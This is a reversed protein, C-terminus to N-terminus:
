LLPIIQCLFALLGPLQLLMWNLKTPKTNNCPVLSSNIFLSIKQPMQKQWPLQSACVSGKAPKPPPPSCSPNKKYLLCLKLFHPPQHSPLFPPPLALLCMNYELQKWPSMEYDCSKPSFAENCFSSSAPVAKHICGSLSLEGLVQPEGDPPSPLLPWSFEHPQLALGPCPISICLLWWRRGKM